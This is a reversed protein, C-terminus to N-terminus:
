RKSRDLGDADIEIVVRPTTYNTLWVQLMKGGDNPRIPREWTHVYHWAEIVKHPRWLPALAKYDPPGLLSLVDAETAGVFLVRAAKEIKLRRQQNARYPYRIGALFDTMDPHPVPIRALLEGPTPRSHHVGVDQATAELVDGITPDFAREKGVPHLVEAARNRQGTM